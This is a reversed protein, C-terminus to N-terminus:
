EARRVSVRYTPPTNKVKLSSLSLEYELTEGSELRALIDPPLHERAVSKVEERSVSEQTENQTFLARSTVAYIRQGNVMVRDLIVLASQITHTYQGLQESLRNILDAMWNQIAAWFAMAGIIVIGAGILPLLFNM